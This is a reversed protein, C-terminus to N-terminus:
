NENPKLETSTAPQDAGGQGSLSPPNRVLSVSSVIGGAVCLILLGFLIPIPTKQSMSYGILTERVRKRGGSISALIMWLMPLGAALGVSIGLGRWDYKSLYGSLYLACGSVVGILSLWNAVQIRGANERIVVKKSKSGLGTPVWRAWKKSLWEAVTAGLIGSVIPRLFDSIM